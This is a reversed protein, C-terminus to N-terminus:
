GIINVAKAPGVADASVIGNPDVFGVFMGLIGKSTGFMSQACATTDPSPVAGSGTLEVDTIRFRGFGKIRYCTNAGSSESNNCDSDNGFADYIAITVENNTSNILNLVASELSAKNGTETDLYATETSVTITTNCGTDGSSAYSNIWGALESAGGGGGNLDVWGFSGSAPSGEDDRIIYCADLTFNADYAGDGNTDGSITAPFLNACNAAGLAGFISIASANATLENFNVISLLFTNFQVTPTAKVGGTGDPISGGGVFAQPILSSGTSDVYEIALTDSVGGPYGTGSAVATLKSYITSDLSARSAGSMSATFNSALYSSGGRAVADAVHQARTRQLFANAGDIALAAFAVMGTIMFAIIVIAQGNEDKLLRKIMYSGVLSM